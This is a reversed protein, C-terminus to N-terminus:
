RDAGCYVASGQGARSFISMESCGCDNTREVRAVSDAVVVDRQAEGRAGRADEAISNLVGALAHQADGHYV